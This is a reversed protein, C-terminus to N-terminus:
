DVSCASIASKLDMISITTTENGITIQVRGKSDSKVIVKDGLKATEELRSIDATVNVSM